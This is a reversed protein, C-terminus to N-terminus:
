LSEKELNRARSQQNERNLVIEDGTKINKYYGDSRGSDLTM